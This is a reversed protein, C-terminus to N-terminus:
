YVRSGRGVHKRYVSHGVVGPHSAYVRSPFSMFFYPNLRSFPKIERLQYPITQRSETGAAYTSFKQGPGIEPATDAVCLRLDKPCFVDRTGPLSTHGKRM